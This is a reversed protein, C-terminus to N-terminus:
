QNKFWGRLEISRGLKKFFIFILIIFLALLLRKFHALSLMALWRPYYFTAQNLILLIHM